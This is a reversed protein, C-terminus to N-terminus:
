YLELAIKFGTILGLRIFIDRYKAYLFAKDKLVDVGRTMHRVNYFFPRALAEDNWRIHLVDRYVLVKLGFIDQISTFDDRFAKQGVGIALIHSVICFAPLGKLRFTFKKPRGDKEKNKIHELNVNVM